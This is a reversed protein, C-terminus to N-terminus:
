RCIEHEKRKWLDTKTERLYTLAYGCGVGARTGGGSCFISVREGAAPALPLFDFLTIVLVFVFFTRMAAMNKQTKPQQNNPNQQNTCFRLVHLVLSLLTFTSYFQIFNNFSSVFLVQFSFFM